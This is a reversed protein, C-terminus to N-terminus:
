ERLITTTIRNDESALSRFDRPLDTLIDSMVEHFQIPKEM